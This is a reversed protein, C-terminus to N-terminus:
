RGHPVGPPKPLQKQFLRWERECKRCVFGRARHKQVVKVEEMPKNHRPCNM